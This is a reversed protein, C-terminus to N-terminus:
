RLEDHDKSNTDAVEKAVSTASDVSFPGQMSSAVIRQLVKQSTPDSLAKEWAANDLEDAVHQADNIQTM